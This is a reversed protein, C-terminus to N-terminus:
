SDFSINEIFLLYLFIFMFRRGVVPHYNKLQTVKMPDTQKLPHDAADSQSAGHKGKHKEKSQDDTEARGPASQGLPSRM